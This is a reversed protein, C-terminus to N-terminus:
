IFEREIEELWDESQHFVRQISIRTSFEVYLVLYNWQIKKRLPEFDKVYGSAEPFEEIFEIAKDIEKDFRNIVTTSKTQKFLFERLREIDEYALDTFKITKGM